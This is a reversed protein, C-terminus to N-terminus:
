KKRSRKSKAVSGSASKRKLMRQPRGTQEPLSTGPTENNDEETDTQDQKPQKRHTKVSAPTVPVEQEQPSEPNEQDTSPGAEDEGVVFVRVDPKATVKLLKQQLNLNEEKFFRIEEEYEAIKGELLRSIDGAAANIRQNM